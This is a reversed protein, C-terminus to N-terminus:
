RSRLTLPSISTAAMRGRWERHACAFRMTATTECAGPGNEKNLSELNLNLPRIAGSSCCSPPVLTFFQAPYTLFRASDRSSVPPM